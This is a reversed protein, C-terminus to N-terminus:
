CPLNTLMYSNPLRNTLTGERSWDNPHPFNFLLVDGRKILELEMM